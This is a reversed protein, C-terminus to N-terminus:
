SEWCCDDKLIQIVSPAGWGLIGFLLVCFRCFSFSEAFLWTWWLSTAGFYQDVVVNRKMKRCSPGM